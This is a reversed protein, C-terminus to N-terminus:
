TGRGKPWAQVPQEPYLRMVAQAAELSTTVAICVEDGDLFMSWRPDSKPLTLYVNWRRM